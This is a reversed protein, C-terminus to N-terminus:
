GGSLAAVIIVEDNTRLAHELRTAGAGNVFFRIHPRIRGQEDIIGIARCKGFPRGHLHPIMKAVATAVTESQDYVYRLM